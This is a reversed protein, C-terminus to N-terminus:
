GESCKCNWDAGKERYNFNHNCIPSPLPVLIIPQNVTEKITVTADEEEEEEGDEEGSNSIGQAVDIASKIAGM